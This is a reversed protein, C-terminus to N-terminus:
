ALNFKVTRLDGSVPGKNASETRLPAFHLRDLGNSVYKCSVPIREEGELGM